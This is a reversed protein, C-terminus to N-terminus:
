RRPSLLETLLAAHAARPDSRQAAHDAGFILQMVMLHVVPALALWPERLLVSDSGLWAGARALTDRLLAQHPEIVQRQWQEILHPVRESEALLLRFTAQTAPQALSAHLREVLWEAM